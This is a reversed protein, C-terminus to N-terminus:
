ASANIRGPQAGTRGRTDYLTKEAVSHILDLMRQNHQLRAKLMAGALENLRAARESANRVAQWDDLCGTDRAAAQAGVDGNPYGLDSQAQRRQEETRELQELLAQKDAAIRQLLEGDINGVALAQREQELLTVLAGLYDFQMGLLNALKM